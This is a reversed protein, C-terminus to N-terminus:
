YGSSGSRGRKRHRPIHTPEKFQGEGSADPEILSDGIMGSMGYQLADQPHSFRNKDPETTFKEFGTTQMRRYQYGGLFGRRLTPCRAKDLLFAPRGDVMSNLYKKVSELRATITVKGPEVDINKARMIQFCTKEDTQSRQNGAPDGFDVFTFGAYRSGSYKLVNDSFRDISMSDSVMEDFILVQGRPSIQMFVACPTLGFDWGRTIPIGRIPSLNDTAHVNDVYEYYVPKGDIIFGYQGHVYVKVWEPDKGIVLREYYRPDNLNEINEALPSMGSPQDFFKYERRILAIQDEASIPSDADVYKEPEEALFYWWHDTDPPNTDMIVGFWIDQNDLDAKKPFRTVRGGVADIIAKPVERAENIWAGTLEMSLLKKVDAPKDLAQFIVELDVDGYKVYHVKENRKYVGFIEEPFWEFWIKMTTRELEKYSNRVIAWKSRRLGKKNKPVERARRMIEMCCAVSKGSGFPGKVGRYFTDDQHFKSLTTSAKYNIVELKAM